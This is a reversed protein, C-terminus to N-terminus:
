IRWLRMAVLRAEVLETLPDDKLARFDDKAPERFNGGNWLAMHGSANNWGVVEMEVIGAQGIFADEFNSRVTKPEGLVSTLVARLEKVRYLYPKGDAGILANAELADVVDQPISWGSANLSRCLRVACTNGHEPFGEEGVVASLQGGIGTFLTGLNPFMIRDPYSKWVDIFTPTLM